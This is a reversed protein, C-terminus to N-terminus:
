LGGYITFPFDIIKETFRPDDCYKQGNITINAKMGFATPIVAPQIEMEIWANRRSEIDTTVGGQTGSYTGSWDDSDTGQLTFTSDSTKTIVYTGDIPALAGNFVNKIRYLHISSDTFLHHETNITIEVPNGSGTSVNVILVDLPQYISLSGSVNIFHVGNRITSGDGDHSHGCLIAQLMESADYLAYIATASAGDLQFFADTGDWPPSHTLIICPIRLADCEDLRDSLWTDIGTPGPTVSNWNAMPWADDVGGSHHMVIFRIGTRDFTYCWPSPIPLEPGHANEKVVTDDNSTFYDAMIPNSSLGTWILAVHNGVTSAFPSQLNLFADNFANYQTVKETATCSADVADGGFLVVNPQWINMRTVFALTKTPADMTDRGFNESDGPGVTGSVNDSYHIDTFMGIKVTYALLPTCLTLTLIAVLLLLRRIKM